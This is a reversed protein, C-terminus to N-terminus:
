EKTVFEVAEQDNMVRCFAEAAFQTNMEGVLEYSGDLTRRAIFFTKKGRYGEKKVVIWRGHAKVPNRM